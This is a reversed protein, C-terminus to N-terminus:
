WILKRVGDCQIPHNKKCVNSEVRNVLKQSKSVLIYLGKKLSALSVTGLTTYHKSLRCYHPGYCRALLGM